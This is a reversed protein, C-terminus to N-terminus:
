RARPAFVTNATDVAAPGSAIRRSVTFRWVQPAFETNTTDTTPSVEKGIPSLAFEM